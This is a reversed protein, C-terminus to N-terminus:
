IMKHCGCFSEIVREGRERERERERERQKERRLRYFVEFNIGVKRRDSSNRSGCSDKNQISNIRVTKTPTYFSRTENEIEEDINERANGKTEPKLPKLIERQSEVLLAKM